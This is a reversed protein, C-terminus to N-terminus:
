RSPFIYQGNYYRAEHRNKTKRSCSENACFGEFREWQERKWKQHEKDTELSQIISRVKPSYESIDKGICDGKYEALM